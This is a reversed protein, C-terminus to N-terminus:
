NEEKNKKKKIHIKKTKVPEKKQFIFYRNFFSIEKEIETMNLSTGYKSEKNQQLQQFLASFLDSGNPIGMENADQKSILYMDYKNMLQEFYEFNFLYETFTQNITEIFVQIEMGLSTQDMPLVDVDNGLNDYEKRIRWIINGSDPHKGILTHGKQYQKLKHYITNGDFSTGVFYGNLQTNNAINRVLTELTELSSFFYHIAFQCSIINFGNSCLGWIDRNQEPIETIPKNGWLINLVNSNYEDLGSNNNMGMLDKRGDAWVFLAKPLGIPNRKMNDMYRSCAGDNPNEINDKMNDIGLVFTLNNNRWKPLDGGKGCGIDLLIGGNTKSAVQRILSSKVYLNHFDLMSRSISKNRPVVRAYYRNEEETIDPLHNGTTIMEKTIPNHITKWINNATEFDNGFQRKGMLRQETKDHRVNRPIWSWANDTKNTDYSMEVIMGDLIEDNTKTTLMRTIGNSDITLPINAICASNDPPHTPKFEVAYYGEKQVKTSYTNNMLDKCTHYKSKSPNFGCKLKLTKYSLLDGVGDGITYGIKDEKQEKVVEVLFDITNDEPPKWKFNLKWTKGTNEVKDGYYEQGVGLNCPTFILGDTEYDVVDTDTENLITNCHEFIKFGCKDMNGYYFKKVRIDLPTDIEDQYIWNATKIANQLLPMRSTKKDIPNIYLPSSRIDEGNLYYCDFILYKPSYQGLKNYLVYEGDFITNSLNSTKIGLSLVRWRNNILYCEKKQNIYMIYRDGDAKETVGYNMQITPITGDPYERINSLELSIPQPGIWHINSMAMNAPVGKGILNIYSKLIEDKNSKSLLYDSQQITQIIVGMADIYREMLEEKTLDFEELNGIFELEVEYIEPFSMINSNLLSTSLKYSGDINKESEKLVTLDYRFLRDISTFSIRKKLRYSKKKNKHNMLLADIESNDIDLIEENKLNIRIGYEPIDLGRKFEDIRSKKTFEMKLNTLENTNCYKTIDELNLISMRIDDIKIDLQEEQIDELLQLGKLRSVIQEFTHRNMKINQTVPTFVTELEINNNGNTLLYDIRDLTSQYQEGTVEM